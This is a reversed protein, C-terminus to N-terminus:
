GFVVIGNETIERALTTAVHKQKELEDSTLVCIDISSNFHIFLKYLRYKLDHKSIEGDYVVAIDYDSDPRADGRARSGFLFIKVPAINAVIRDVIEKLQIDM